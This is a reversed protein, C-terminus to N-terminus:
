LDEIKTRDLESSNRRRSRVTFYVALLILTPINGMLWVVIMQVVFGATVGEQPAMMNLPYLLSFLFSLIPLVLGPWRSRARSLFFQLVLIGALFLLTLIIRVPIFM